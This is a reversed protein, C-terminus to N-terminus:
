ASTPRVCFLWEALAIRTCISDIDRKLYTMTTNVVLFPLFYPLLARTCGQNCLADMEPIHVHELSKKSHSRHRNVKYSHWALGACLVAM